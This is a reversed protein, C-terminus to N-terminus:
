GQCVTVTDAPTALFSTRRISFYADEHQARLYDCTPRLQFLGRRDIGQPLGRPLETAPLTWPVGEAQLILSVPMLTLPHAQGAVHTAPLVEDDAFVVDRLICPCGKVIGFRVCDKSSLLLKM